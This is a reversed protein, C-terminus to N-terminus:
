TSPESSPSHPTTSAQPPLATKEPTQSHTLKKSLESISKSLESISSPPIIPEKAFSLTPSSLKVTQTNKQPKYQYPPSSGGTTFDYPNTTFDKLSVAHGPGTSLSTNPLNM